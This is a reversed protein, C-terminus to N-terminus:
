KRKPEDSSRITVDVEYGFRFIIQLKSESLIRISEIMARVLKNDFFLADKKLSEIMLFVEETREGGSQAHTKDETADILSRLKRKEKGLAEFESDYKEIDGDRSAFSILENLMVNIEGLRLRAQDVEDMEGPSDDLLGTRIHVKLTEVMSPNMEALERIADVVADELASEEISPSAKCYKKGFDLRNLCRWVIKKAGNKSWTVRRYPRGCEGCILLETLAYMSSYKGQETKTGVEKVKPKSSRRALEEQVRNWMSRAIIPPHNNEVYYQPLQGTNKKITKSMCDAVFTKQLIADGMYKENKLISHVTSASWNKLRMPTLIGDSTLGEAIKERSEGSLFERYIRIVVPAEQPDIEPKGDDGRRYGLFSKYSFHVNGKKFSKRKGWSVNGSHSEIEAQALSSYITIIFENTVELTNFGEKEFIIGIGMSKLLRVYELSDVTNRAFRSVSKAIIQDIKGQRCWSIMRRFDKRRKTERGTLGEDAFVEVYQWKPNRMIMDTYFERQAEFSQEQEDSDTSVRCYAATRLQRNALREQEILFEPKPPILRISKQSSNEQM